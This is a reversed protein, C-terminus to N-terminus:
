ILTAILLRSHTNIDSLDPAPLHCKRHPLRKGSQRIRSHSDFLNLGRRRITQVAPPPMIRAPLHHQSEGAAAADPDRSRVM